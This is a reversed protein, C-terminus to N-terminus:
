RKRSVSVIEEQIRQDIVEAPAKAKDSLSQVFSIYERTLASPPFLAWHQRRVIMFVAMTVGIMWLLAGAILVSAIEPYGISLARMGAYLIAVSVVYAVLSFFHLPSGVKSIDFGRRPSCKM